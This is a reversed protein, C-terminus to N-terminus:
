RILDTPLLTSVRCELYYKFAVFEKGASLVQQKSLSLIVSAWVRSSWSSADTSPVRYYGGLILNSNEMFSSFFTRDTIGSPARDPRSTGGKGPSLVSLTFHRPALGATYNPPRVQSSLAVSIRLLCLVIVSGM